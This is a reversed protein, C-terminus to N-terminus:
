KNFKFDSYTEDVTISTLAGLIIVKMITHESSVYYMSFKNNYKINIDINMKTVHFVKINFPERNKINIKSMQKTEKNIHIYGTSHAMFAIKSDVKDKPINFGIILETENDDSVFFDKGQLKYYNTNVIGNRNKNFHKIARKSPAKGKSSILEYKEGKPKEIDYLYEIEKKSTSHNAEQETTTVSKAKFSYKAQSLDISSLINETSFGYEKLLENASKNQAFSNSVILLLTIISIITKIKM